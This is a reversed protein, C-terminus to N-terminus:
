KEKECVESSPVYRNGVSLVVDESLNNKRFFELVAEAEADYTAEVLVYPSLPLDPKSFRNAVFVMSNGQLGLGKLFREVLDGIQWAREERFGCVYIKLM